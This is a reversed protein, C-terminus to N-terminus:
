KYAKFLPTIKSGIDNPFIAIISPMIDLTNTKGLSTSANIFFSKEDIEGALLAKMLKEISVKKGIPVTSPVRFVINKSSSAVPLRAGTFSKKVSPVQIMAAAIPSETEPAKKIISITMFKM